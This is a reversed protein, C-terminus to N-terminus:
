RGGLRASTDGGRITNGIRRAIEVLVEDGAQHGLTDNIPKFGDLDLYCLAMMNQERSTQAIAQKMRDALLIRNPIGTLATLIRM